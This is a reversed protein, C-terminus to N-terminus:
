GAQVKTILEAFKELEGIQDTDLKEHLALLKKAPIKTFAEYAAIVDSDKDAETLRQLTEQETENLTQFIFKWQSPRILAGFAKGITSLPNQEDISFSGLDGDGQTAAPVAPIELTDQTNPNKGGLLKKIDDKDMGMKEAYKLLMFSSGKEALVPLAKKLIDGVVALRESALKADEQNKNQDAIVQIANTQMQFGQLWGYGMFQLMNILPEVHATTQKIMRLLVDDRENIKGHLMKIYGGQQELIRELPDHKLSEPDMVTVNQTQTDPDYTWEFCPRKPRSVSSAVYCVIRFTIPGAEDPPRKNICYHAAIRITGAVIDDPDYDPQNGAATKANGVILKGIPEYQKRDRKRQVQIQFLGELNEFIMNQLHTDVPPISVSEDIPPHFEMGEPTGHIM